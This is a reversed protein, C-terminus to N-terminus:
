LNDYLFIAENKKVCSQLLKFSIRTIPYHSVIDAMYYRWQVMVKSKYVIFYDPTENDFNLRIVGM